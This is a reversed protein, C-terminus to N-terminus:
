MHRFLDLHLGQYIASLAYAKFSKVLAECSACSLTSAEPDISFSSGFGDDYENEMHDEDFDM